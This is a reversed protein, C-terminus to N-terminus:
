RGAAIDGVADLHKPEWGLERRARDSTLQQDLAYAGAIVGM